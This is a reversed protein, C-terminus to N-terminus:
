GHVELPDVGDQILLCDLYFKIAWNPLFYKEYRGDIPWSGPLLGNLAAEDFGRLHLRGLQDTLGSAYDRYAKDGCAKALKFCVIALQAIGTPVLERGVPVFDEAYHGAPVGALALGPDRARMLRDASRRAAAVFDANGLLLGVEVIGELTYAIGHLNNRAGDPFSFRSFWGREDQCSLAWRISRQAAAVVERDGLVVGAHALGITARTYYNRKSGSFSSRTSYSGDAEVEGALWRAASDMCERVRASREIRTYYEALGCLVQGTDFALSRSDPSWAGTRYGGDPQQAKILYEAMGNVLEASVGGKDHARALCLSALIYGTTEPYSAFYTKGHTAYDALSVGGPVGGDGNHAVAREYWAVILAIHERVTLREFEMGPALLKGAQPHRRIASMVQHDRYAGYIEPVLPLKKLLEKM